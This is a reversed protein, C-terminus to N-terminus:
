LLKRSGVSIKMIFFLTPWMLKWGVRFTLYWILMLWLLQDRSFWCVHNSQNTSSKNHLCTNLTNTLIRWSSKSFSGFDQVWMLEVKVLFHTHGVGVIEVCIIWGCWFSQKTYSLMWNYIISYFNEFSSLLPFIILPELTPACWRGHQRVGYAGEVVM